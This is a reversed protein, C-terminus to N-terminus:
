WTKTFKYFLRDKNEQIDKWKRAIMRKFEEDSLKNIEKGKPDTVLSITDSWFHWTVMNKWEEQTGVNIVTYLTSWSERGIKKM